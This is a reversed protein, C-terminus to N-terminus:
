FQIKIFDEAFGIIEPPLFTQLLPLAAFILKNKPFFTILTANKFGFSAHYGDYKNVTSSEHRRFQGKGTATLTMHQSQM